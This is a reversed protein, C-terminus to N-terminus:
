RFLQSKTENKKKIKLVVRKHRNIDRGKGDDETKNFLQDNSRNRNNWYNVITGKEQFIQAQSENNAKDKNVWSFM